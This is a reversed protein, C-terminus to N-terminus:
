RDFHETAQEIFAIGNSDCPGGTWTVRIAARLGEKKPAVFRIRIDNSTGYPTLEISSSPLSHNLPYYSLGVHWIRQDELERPFSAFYVNEELGKEITILKDLEEGHNPIACASTTSVVLCSLVLVAISNRSSSRM